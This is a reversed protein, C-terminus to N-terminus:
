PTVEYHFKGLGFATQKGIHTKSCFDLLPLYNEFKGNYTISGTIGGMLMKEKQRSSYRKWDFWQLSNGKIEVAQAEKVLSSYDIDPEGEGYCELLTSIRRLMARVLVHFPLDAKLHNKFKIRLPTEFTLMLTGNTKKSKLNEPFLLENKNQFKIKQESSKYIVQGAAKVKILKFKGRQGNIKKGVGIKGMQNLAYIFYPINNNMNGFILIKFNFLDGTKFKTQNTLPPEIVFPHPVFSLKSEPSASVTKDTEFVLAYICNNNLLCSNCENQKLACVVKKLAIGFVGRFTSGKYYPLEANNKFKCSFKYEGYEM